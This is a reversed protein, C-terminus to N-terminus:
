INNNKLEYYNANHSISKLSISDQGLVKQVEQYSHIRTNEVELKGKVLMKDIKVGKNKRKRCGVGRM